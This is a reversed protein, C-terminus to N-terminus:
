SYILSCFDDVLVRLRFGGVIQKKKENKEKLWMKLCVINLNFINGM